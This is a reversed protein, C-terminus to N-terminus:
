HCEAGECRSNTDPHGYCSKGRWVAIKGEKSEGPAALLVEQRSNTVRAVSRVVGKIPEKRHKFGAIEETAVWVKTKSSGRM